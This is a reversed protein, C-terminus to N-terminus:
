TATRDVKTQLLDKLTLLIKDPNKKTLFITKRTSIFGIVILDSIEKIDHSKLLGYEFLFYYNRIKTNFITYLFNLLSSVSKYKIAFVWPLLKSTAVIRDQPSKSTALAVHGAPVYITHKYALYLENFTTSFTRLWWPAESMSKFQIQNKNLLETVDDSITELKINPLNNLKIMLVELDM